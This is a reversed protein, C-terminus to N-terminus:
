GLLVTKFALCYIGDHQQTIQLLHQSPKKSGSRDSLTQTNAVTVGGGWLPMLQVSSPDICKYPASEETAETSGESRESESVMPKLLDTRCGKNHGFFLSIGTYHALRFLVSPTRDAWNSGNSQDITCNWATSCPQWKIWRPRRFSKLLDIPQSKM